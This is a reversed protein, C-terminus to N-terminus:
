KVGLRMYFRNMAGAMDGLHENFERILYFKGKSKRMVGAQKLRRLIFFYQDKTMQKSEYWEIADQVLLGKSGKNAAKEVIERALAPFDCTSNKSKQSIKFLASFVYDVTIEESPILNLKIENANGM